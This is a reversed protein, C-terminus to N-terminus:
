NFSFKFNFFFFVNNWDVTTIYNENQYNLFFLYFIEAFFLFVIFDTSSHTVSHQIVNPFLLTSSKFLATGINDPM